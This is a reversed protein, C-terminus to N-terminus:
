IKYVVGDSLLLQDADSMIRCAATAEATGFLANTPLGENVMELFKDFYFHEEDELSSAFLKVVRQRFLELRYFFPSILAPVFLRLTSLVVFREPRCEGDVTTGAPVATAQMDVDQSDGLLTSEQTPEETRAREKQKQTQKKVPEAM